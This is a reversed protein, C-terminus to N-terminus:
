RWDLWVCLLLDNHGLDYVNILFLRKEQHLVMTVGGGKGRDGTAMLTIQIQSVRHTTISCVRIM